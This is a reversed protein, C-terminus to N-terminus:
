YDLVVSEFGADKIKQEVEPDAHGRHEWHTLPLSLFLGAAWMLKDPNFETSASNPHIPVIGSYELSPRAIKFVHDLEDVMQADKFHVFFALDRLAFTCATPTPPRESSPHYGPVTHQWLRTIDDDVFYDNYFKCGTLPPPVERDLVYEFQPIARAHILVMRSEGPTLLHFPFNKPFKRSEGFYRVEEV